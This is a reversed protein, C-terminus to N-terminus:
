LSERHFIDPIVLFLSGQKDSHGAPPRENEVGWM